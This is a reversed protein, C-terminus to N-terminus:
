PASFIHAHTHTHPRFPYDHLSLRTRKNTQLTCHGHWLARKLYDLMDNEMFCDFVAPDNQDGWVIIEVMLRLGEVLM